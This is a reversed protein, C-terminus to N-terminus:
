NKFIFLLNNNLLIAIYNKYLLIYMYMYNNIFIIKENKLQHNLLLVLM